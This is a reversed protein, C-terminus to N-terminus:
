TSFGEYAIKKNTLLGVTNYLNSKVDDAYANIQVGLDLNGPSDQSILKNTHGPRHVFVFSYDASTPLGQINPGVGRMWPGKLKVSVQKVYGVCSIGPSNEGTYILDLKCAVPFVPPNSVSNIVPSTDVARKESAADSTSALSALEGPATAVVEAGNRNIPLTLSQLRGGVDLLTLSGYECFEEDEFHLSFSFPIELPATGRYQHIGDPIVFNSTVRYEANRTLEIMEPLAPFNIVVANSIASDGLLFGHVGASAHSLSILRGSVQTRRRYVKNKQIGVPKSVVPTAVGPTAQPMTQGGPGQGPQLVGPLAGQSVGQTALTRNLPIDAM